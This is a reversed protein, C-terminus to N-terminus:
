NISKISQITSELSCVDKLYAYASQQSLRNNTIQHKDNIIKGIWAPNSKSMLNIKISSDVNSVNTSFSNILQILFPNDQWPIGSSHYAEWLEIAIKFLVIFMINSIILSEKRSDHREFTTADPSIEKYHQSLQIYFNDIFNTLDNLLAPKKEYEQIRKRFPKLANLLTSNPVLKRSNKHITTKNCEIEPHQFIHTTTMIKHLLRAEPSIDNQVRASQSPNAKKTHMNAQGFIRSEEQAVVNYVTLFRRSLPDFNLLLQNIQQQTITQGSASISIKTPISEPDNKWKFITYYAKHRHASDPITIVGSISLERTDQNYFVDPTDQQARANWIIDVNMLEGKLFAIAIEHVKQTDLSLSPYALPLLMDIDTFDAHDPNQPDFVGRQTAPCYLLHSNRISDFIEQLTISGKYVGNGPNQCYDVNKIITTTTLM